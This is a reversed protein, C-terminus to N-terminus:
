SRHHCHRHHHHHHHLQRAIIKNADLSRVLAAFDNLLFSVTASNCPSLSAGKVGASVIHSEDGTYDNQDRLLLRYSLCERFHSLSGNSVSM